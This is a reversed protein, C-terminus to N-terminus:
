KGEMWTWSSRDNGTGILLWGNVFSVLNRVGGDSTPIAWWDDFAPYVGTKAGRALWANSVVGKPDFEVTVRSGDANHKFGQGFLSRVIAETMGDPLWDHDPEPPNVPPIPDVSEGTQGAKLKGRIMDQFLDTQSRIGQFPCDKPGFEWHQLHTVCGVNPNFPYETYPVKAQDFWYAYLSSAVGLMAATMKEGKGESELSFLRSNVAAIGLTRVFLAGDGDLDNAPGNAWPSRTGLPDNLMVLEGEFTLSYDTLADAQRVGGAGFLHVLSYRDGYGWWQHDCGGVIKRPAVRDFGAGEWPKDVIKKEFPPHKVNGFTLAVSGAGTGPEPAPAPKGEDPFLRRVGVMPGGMNAWLDSRCIGRDENLAHIVDGEGTYIAVHGPSPGFTDWFVLDGKKIREVPVSKGQRFQAISGEPLM